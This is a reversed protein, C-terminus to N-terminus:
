VQFQRRSVRETEFLRFHTKQSHKLEKGFLLIKYHELYFANSSLLIYLKFKNQAPYFVNRSFSFITNALMKKGKGVINEFPKEYLTM